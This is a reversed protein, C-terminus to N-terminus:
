KPLSFTPKSHSFFLLVQVNKLLDSIEKLFEGTDEIARTDDKEKENEMMTKRKRHSGFTSHRSYKSKNEENEKVLDVQQSRRKGNQETVNKKAQPQLFSSTKKRYETRTKSPPSTVNIVVSKKM